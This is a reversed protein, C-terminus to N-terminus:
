AKGSIIRFLIGTEEISTILRYLGDEGFSDDDNVQVITEIGVKVIPVEADQGAM